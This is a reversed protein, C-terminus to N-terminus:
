SQSPDMKPRSSKEVPLELTFTAGRGVGESGVRLEGGMERAALAGSHLGFGHGDKKTTFGHTFIRALNEPAIGVGNDSVAVKVTGNGNYVRLTLTKDPHQAADCAQKANRVLNVLIQLVKHKEVTVPPVDAFDREVRVHNLAFSETNMRLTDEILDAICVKETAGSAKACGQQMAVIQKIHEINKELHALEALAAAQERTLHGALKDLFGPLQKGRPDNAFFGPLDTDHQRLIGAIRGLSAAKSKRLSEAVCASAVTVSNLVNGVNHLVTTAMEAMGAQRTTKMLEDYMKESEAEAQKRESVDRGYSIFLGVADIPSSSWAIWRHSGDKCLCRVELIPPEEGPAARQLAELVAARDDPHVFEIFPRNLSEHVAWGLVREHSPNVRRCYGDTSCIALLDPSATFFRDREDATQRHEAAETQLAWTRQDVRVELHRNASDLAYITYGVGLLLLACIAELARRVVDSRHMTAALQIEHFHRLIGLGATSPVEEIQRTLAEVKPKRGVISRVHSAVVSVEASHPADPHQSCWAALQALTARIDAGAPDDPLIAHVFVEQLLRNLPIELAERDPEAALNGLLETSAVPLYRLSNTLIAHESEFREILREKQDILRSYEELQQRFPREAPDSGALSLASLAGVSGRLEALKAAFSDYNPLLHFQVKLVDDDLEADLKELQALGRDFREHDALAAQNSRAYLHLVGIAIFGPLLFLLRRKM